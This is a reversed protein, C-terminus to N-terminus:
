NNIKGSIGSFIVPLKYILNLSLFTKIIGIVIIPISFSYLIFGM